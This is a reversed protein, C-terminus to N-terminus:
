QSESLSISTGNQKGAKVFIADALPQLSSSLPVNKPLHFLQQRHVVIFTSPLTSLVGSRIARIYSSFDFGKAQSVEVQWVGDNGLEWREMGGANWVEGM